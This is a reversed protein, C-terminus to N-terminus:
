KGLKRKEYEKMLAESLVRYCADVPTIGWEFALKNAVIIVQPKCLKKQLRIYNKPKISDM